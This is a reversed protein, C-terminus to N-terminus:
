GAIRDHGFEKSGRAADPRCGIIWHLRQREPDVSADLRRTDAHPLL